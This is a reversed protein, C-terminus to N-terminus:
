PISYVCFAAMAWKNTRELLILFQLFWTLEETNGSNCVVTSSLFAKMRSAFYAHKLVIRVTLALTYKCVCVCLVMAGKFPRPM